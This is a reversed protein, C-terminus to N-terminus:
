ESEIVELRYSGTQFLPPSRRLQEHMRRLVSRPFGDQEARELCLEIPTNIWIMKLPYQYERALNIWKQRANETTNTADIVLSRRRRLIARAQAEVVAWVFPELRQDHRVGLGQRIDDPCILQYHQFHQDVHTSKGSKPLGILVVLEPCPENTDSGNEHHIEESQPHNAHSEANQNESNM